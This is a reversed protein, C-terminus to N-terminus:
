IPLGFSRGNREKGGDPPDALIRRISAVAEMRNRVNMKRLINQVHKKVSSEALFLREAIERDRAGVAVLAVVEWERATLPLRARLDSPDPAATGHDPQAEGAQRLRDLVWGAMSRSMPLAGTDRFERLARILASADLTKLLYGSAGARVADLLDDESRSVTLMIVPLNSDARVIQKLAAIGGMVPMDLDMLILDVGDPRLEAAMTVAGEGDSAEAVVEFDPEEDLVSRMGLRFMPHDDVILIRLPSRDPEDPM